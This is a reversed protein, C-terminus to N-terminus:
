GEGAAKSAKTAIEKKSQIWAFAANRTNAIRVRGSPHQGSNDITPALCAADDHNDFTLRWLM